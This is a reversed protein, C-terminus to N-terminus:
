KKVSAKKSAETQLADWFTVAYKALRAAITRRKSSAILELQERYFEAERRISDKTRM